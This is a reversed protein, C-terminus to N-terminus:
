PTKTTKPRRTSKSIDYTGVIPYHDSYKVYNITEFDLVSIIPDHFQHDIRIFGPPRNYTFGFGRGEEEFSNPLVRRLEEYVVSYPTDNHDGTVIVPYDSDQIHQIVRQVQEKREIFGNRLASLVGRTEHKVGQIEQQKLVRGVRIGMSQLHVNIVRVTDNGVKIDAWLLGNNGNFPERGSNVIPYVSFIATGIQGMQSNVNAPNLLVSHKYGAQHFRGVINYDPIPSSVYFEQFCKVPADYRLAFNILRRARPTSHERELRDDLGFAQVNYSFVKLPVGGAPLAKPSDWSFTREGFLVIGVLLVLGSLWSRWPRSILWAIVCALNFLWAIPISIMVMGASWHQTPLDHLLWYSFFTYLALLINLSWFVSRFFQFILNGIRIASVTM